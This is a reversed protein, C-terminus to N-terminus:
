GAFFGHSYVGSVYFKEKFVLYQSRARNALSSRVPVLIQDSSIVMFVTDKKSNVYKTKFTRM